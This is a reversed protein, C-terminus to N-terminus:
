IFLRQFCHCFMLSFFVLDKSRKFISYSSLWLLDSSSAAKSSACHQAGTFHKVKLGKM